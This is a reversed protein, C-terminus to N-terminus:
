RVEVLDRIGELTVRGVGTVAVLEELSGFPGNSEIYDLISQAKVEGIGPLAMLQEKSATNVDVIGPGVTSPLPAEGVVPVHWHDEDRLRLALNIASMDAEDVAGGAAEILDLLRSGSQLTYVGPARVGGSIHASLESDTVEESGPPHIEIEDGSPPSGLAVFIAGVIAAVVAGVLIFQSLRNM